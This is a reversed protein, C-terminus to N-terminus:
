VDILSPALILRGGPAMWALPEIPVGPHTLARSGGVWWTNPRNRKFTSLSLIPRVMSGVRRGAPSRLGQEAHRPCTSPFMLRTHTPEVSSPAAVLGIRFRSRSKLLGISLIYRQISSGPGTRYVTHISLIM